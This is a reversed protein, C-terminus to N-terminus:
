TQIENKLIKVSLYIQALNPHCVRQIDVLDFMEMTTRVLNSYNTPKWPAGGIKDKRSLTCNWDGGVILETLETKDIICNLEQM